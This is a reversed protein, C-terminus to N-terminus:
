VSEIKSMQYEDFAARRADSLHRKTLPMEIVILISVYADAIRQRV